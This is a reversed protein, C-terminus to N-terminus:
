GVKFLYMGENEDYEIPYNKTKSYNIEHFNLFKKASIGFGGTERKILNYAGDEDPDNTLMIGVVKEAEDFFLVACNYDFLGFQRMAATNFFIQGSKLISVTPDGIRGSRFNTAVFRKLAM